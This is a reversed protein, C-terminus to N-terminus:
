AEHTAGPAERALPAAAHRPLELTFCTGDHGTSTVTLAGAHAAVILKAIHLGLGLGRGQRITGQRFPEFINALEDSPITSPNRIKVIVRQANSGDIETHVVAHPASHERANGLLNSFVQAMRDQDWTGTTDGVSDIPMSGQSEALEERVSCAVARLDLASPMCPLSGRERIRTVDLVQDIMRRMRATSRLLRTAALHATDMDRAELITEGAWQVAALPTRLDHSLVGIFLRALSSAREAEGRAAREREESDKWATIDIM